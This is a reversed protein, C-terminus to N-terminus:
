PLYFRQTSIYTLNSLVLTNVLSWSSWIYVFHIWTTPSIALHIPHIFCLKSTTRIGRLYNGWCFLFLVQIVKFYLNIIWISYYAFSSVINNNNNNNNQGAQGTNLKHLLVKGKTQKQHLFFTSCTKAQYRAAERTKTSYPFLETAYSWETMLPSRYFQNMAKKRLPQNFAPLCCSQNVPILHSYWACHPRYHQRSITRAKRRSLTRLPAFFGNRFYPNTVESRCFDVPIYSPIGLEFYPIELGFTPIPSHVVAQLQISTPTRKERVLKVLIVSVETGTDVLFRIGTTHDRVYFTCSRRSPGPTNNARVVQSGRKGITFLNVTSIFLSEWM